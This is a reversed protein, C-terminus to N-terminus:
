GSRFIRAITERVSAVSDVTEAEPPVPRAIMIVPIKLTAAANLKAAVQAGGSNKSVLHTIANTSLLAMEEALTFPGRHSIITWDSPLGPPIEIMRATFSCDARKFFPELDQRGVTLLVCAGEPLAEAASNLDPVDVWVVGDPRAWAPRELRILPVHAASAAEAGNASIRAAFPHTADVLLDIQNDCLYDALGKAGGFGGIRIEGAPLIPTQTRGALSSIVDHGDSILMDALARAEGTGGLVLIRRQRPHDNSMTM